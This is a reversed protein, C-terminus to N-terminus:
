TWFEELCKRQMDKAEETGSEDWENWMTSVVTQRLSSKVDYLRELLIWMSAFRTGAPRIIEKKSHEPFMGLVKYKRTFFTIISLAEKLLEKIWLLEGIDEMLLDIHHSACPTWAITKFKAELLRGMGACNSANDTVVQVM